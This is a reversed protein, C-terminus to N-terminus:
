GGSKKKDYNSIAMYLMYFNLPKDKKWSFPLHQLRHDAKDHEFWKCLFQHPFDSKQLEKKVLVCGANM